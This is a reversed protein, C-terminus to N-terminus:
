ITHRPRAEGAPRADYARMVAATLRLLEIRAEDDYPADQVRKCAGLLAALDGGYVPTLESRAYWRATEALAAAARDIQSLFEACADSLM